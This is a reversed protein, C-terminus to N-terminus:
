IFGKCKTKLAHKVSKPYDICHKPKTDHIRCIYKNKNPLKRLWPCRNLEDGTKPSFWLDMTYMDICELIDIRGEKEWRLIDEENATTSYADSLNLCCNGCQKCNFKEMETIVWIGNDQAPGKGIYADIGFVLKYIELVDEICSKKSLFAEELLLAFDHYTYFKHEKSNESKYWVGDRLMDDPQRYKGLKTSGGVLLTYVKAFLSNQASYLSFDDCIEKIANSISIFKKDKHNM